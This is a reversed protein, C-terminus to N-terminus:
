KFDIEQEQGAPIENSLSNGPIKDSLEDKGPKKEDKPPPPAVFKKAAQDFEWKNSEKVARIADQVPKTLKMPATLFFQLTENLVEVEKIEPILLFAKNTLAAVLQVQLYVPLETLTTAIMSLDTISESTGIEDQIRSCKEEAERQEESMAVMAEKVRTIINAMFSKLAPDARDPIIAEELGATNKGIWMDTPDWTIVPRNNKSYIYGVQDAVRLMLNYSQGTVDPIMKKLDEDKKAHAVLIIDAGEERRANVFRKFEEGIAGYAQLKNKQLKFDNKVVWAMLFDDLAAKATDIIITKYLKYLGQQEYQLVEDWGGEIVIADKRGFSRAVGRDFDLFLPSDATHAISSKRLGYDGFYAIVVPREPMPDTAKLLPM